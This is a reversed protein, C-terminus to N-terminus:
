TSPHVIFRLTTSEDAVFARSLLDFILM